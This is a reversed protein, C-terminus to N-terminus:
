EEFAIRGPQRSEAPVSELVTEIGPEAAIKILFNALPEIEVVVLKYSVPFLFIIFIIFNDFNTLTNTIQKANIVVPRACTTILESIISAPPPNAKRAEDVPCCNADPM